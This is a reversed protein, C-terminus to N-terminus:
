TKWKNERIFYGKKRNTGRNSPCGTYRRKSEKKELSGKWEDLGFATAYCLFSAGRSRHITVKKRNSWLFGPSERLPPVPTTFHSAADIESRPSSSSLSDGATSVTDSLNEKQSRRSHKSVVNWTVNGVLRPINGAVALSRYLLQLIIPQTLQAKKTFQNRLPLSALPNFRPNETVRTKSSAEYSIRYLSVVIM